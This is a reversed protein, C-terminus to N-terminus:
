NKLRTAQNLDKGSERVNGCIPAFLYVFTQFIIFPM